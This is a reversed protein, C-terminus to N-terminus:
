IEVWQRGKKKILTLKHDYQAKFLRKKISFAQTIHGKVDITETIGDLHVVEFDAKYAIRPKDQLIYKPQLHLERIEGRDLRDKLVLYYEAEAKSDFHIGEVDTIGFRKLEDVEFLTGDATVICRKAGYKHRKM